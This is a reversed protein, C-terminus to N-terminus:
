FNLVQFATKVAAKVVMHTELTNAVMAITAHRYATARGRITGRTTLLFPTVSTAQNWGVEVLVINRVRVLLEKEELLVSM